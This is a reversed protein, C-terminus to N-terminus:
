VLTAKAAKRFFLFFLFSLFFFFLFGPITLELRFRGVLTNRSSRLKASGGLSVVTARVSKPLDQRGGISSLTSTDQVMSYPRLNRLYYRNLRQQKTDDALPRQALNSYIEGNPEISSTVIRFITHSDGPRSDHSSISPM